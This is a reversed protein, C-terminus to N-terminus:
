LNHENFFKRLEILNMIQQHTPEVYKASPTDMMTCVDQMARDVTTAHYTNLLNQRIVNMCLTLVEKDTYRGKAANYWWCVIQTNDKTYGKSPDIKDISPAYPSRNSYDSGRDEVEFAFGTKPCYGGIIKEYIDEVTLDFELGSKNARHLSAHYLSYAVRYTPYCVDCLSKLRRAKGTYAVWDRGCQECQKQMRDERGDRAKEARCAKCYPRYTTNGAKTKETSFMSLPKSEECTKCKKTDILHGVISAIVTSSYDVESEKCSSEIEQQNM